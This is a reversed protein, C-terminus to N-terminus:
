LYEECIKAINAASKGGNQLPTIKKLYDDDLDSYIKKGLALAVMVVTSYKTVLTDCNAIMHNTNGHAFILSGPAWREIEQIAREKQENPHLKFILQRGAALRVAKQIFSKRNEYKFTERLHSTAALFYHKYPFNNQIYAQCNDFNPIGTVAIKEPKVGKNLFIEKYGESAVCFKVYADSLGTVSTNALYRPLGLNKVLYYKFNEPDTMGEQILIIKKDQINAPIILDSCTLVLDYDHQVGGYDIKRGKENLFKESRNKAQGGLPTFDLYGNQALINLLGDTYYPTFYCDHEQLQEAIQHMMTTQNLTGCIFLIKKQSMANKELRSSKYVKVVFVSLRM